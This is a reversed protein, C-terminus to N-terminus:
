LIKTKVIKNDNNQKWGNIERNRSPTYIIHLWGVPM